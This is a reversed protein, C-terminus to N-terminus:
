RLLPYSSLFVKMTARPAPACGIALLQGARRGEQERISSFLIGGRQLREELSLLEAEDKAVIAVAATDPPLSPALRASEGAAHVLQAAKEGPSLDSRM